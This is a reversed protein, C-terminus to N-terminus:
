KPVGKAADSRRGTAIVSRYFGTLAAAAGRWSYREVALARASTALRGALGPNELLQVIGAAFAAPQDAILIDRGPVADIGEAGLTTSVIPKQMAMGEVIKLRTGGGLRLPVVIAAASALHPRLDDVFGVVEVGPRALDLVSRPARAGLIKLRADPRRAVVAPWIDEVLHHVGDVNPVTSLLGFFVVTRGDSPPDSPRPQYFEVDAANPIVITRADPVMALLREEDARSCACIGDAARFAAFEERRLKRWNVAAHGRRALGQASRAFQRAMDWAIEHTDLVLPPPQKGPPAQRFDLHALYPFELNVVDYTRSRLLSNLVGQLAPVAVRLREYSSLSAAARLQLLRKALGERGRPNPVLVAEACYERLARGCEDADFEDDILVVATVDHGRAVQTLLGHMRAQAGFRPPSPPMQSVFLVRLRQDSMTRAPAPQSLGDPAYLM